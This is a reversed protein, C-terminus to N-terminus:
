SEDYNEQNMKCRSTQVIKVLEDIEERYEQKNEKIYNQFITFRWIKSTIRQQKASQCLKKKEAQHSEGQLVKGVADFWDYLAKYTSLDKQYNRLEKTSNLAKAYEGTILYLEVLNRIQGYSDPKIQIIKQIAAISDAYNGQEFSAKRRRNLKREERSEAIAVQKRLEEKIQPTEKLANLAAYSNINLLYKAAKKWVNKNYQSDGIIKKLFDSWYSQGSAALIAAVRMAKDTHKENKIENEIIITLRSNLPTNKSIQSLKMGAKVKRVEPGLITDLELDKFVPTRTIKHMSEMAVRNVEPSKEAIAAKVLAEVARSISMKIKKDPETLRAESSLSQLGWAAGDRELYKGDQNELISAFQDVGYHWDPPNSSLNSLAFIIKKRAVGFEERDLTIQSDDKPIKELLEVLFNIIKKKEGKKSEKFELKSLSDVCRQLVVTEYTVDSKETATALLRRAQKIREISDKYEYTEISMLEDMRRVASDISDTANTIKEQIGFFKINFQDLEDLSANLNRQIHRFNERISQQMGMGEAIKVQVREKLEDMREVQDVVEENLAAEIKIRIKEAKDDLVDSIRSEILQQFGFYSLIGVLTVVASGIGVLRTIVHRAVEHKYLEKLHNFTDDCWSRWADFDPSEQPM